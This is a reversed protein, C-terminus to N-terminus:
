SSKGEIERIQNEMLQSESRFREVINKKLSSIVRNSKEWVNLELTIREGIRDSIEKALRRWEDKRPCDREEWTMLRSAFERSRLVQLVDTHTKEAESQIEQRLNQVGYKANNELRDIRNKLNEFTKNMEELNQNDMVKGVKLSYQVRRIISSIWRFLSFLAKLQLTNYTPM